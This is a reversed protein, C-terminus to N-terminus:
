HHFQVNRSFIVCTKLLVTITQLIVPYHILSEAYNYFIIIFYCLFLFISETGPLLASRDMNNLLCMLAQLAVPSRKMGQM